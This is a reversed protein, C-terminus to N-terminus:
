KYPVGIPGKIKVMYEYIISDGESVVWQFRAEWIFGSGSNIADSWFPGKVEEDGSSMRLHVYECNDKDITWGNKLKITFVDDGRGTGHLTGAPGGMVRHSGCFTGRDLPDKWKKYVPSCANFHADQGCQKCTVVPDDWKVVETSRTAYFPMELKNSKHGDKTYVQVEAMQDKLGTINPVTGIVRTSSEWTVHTLTLYIGVGKFDRCFLSIAGGTKGLNRGKIAVRGMPTAHLGTKSVGLAQYITPKLTPVKKKEKEIKPPLIPFNKKRPVIKLSSEKKEIISFASDSTDRVTGSSTVGRIRIKYGGAVSLKGKNYDGVTWTYSTANPSINKKIFGLKQGDKLIFINFKTFNGNKSWTIAKQSGIVWSEGGNPSTVQLSASFVTSSFVILSVM